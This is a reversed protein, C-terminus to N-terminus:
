MPVSQKLALPKAPQPESRRGSVPSSAGLKQEDSLKAFQEPSHGVPNRSIWITGAVVAALAVGVALRGRWLGFWALWSPNEESTAKAFQRTVEGQLMRRTAPHLSFDAGRERREKAYRQLLEETKNPGEPMM